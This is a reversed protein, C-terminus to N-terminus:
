HPLGNELRYAESIVDAKLRNSVAQDLEVLGLPQQQGKVTM